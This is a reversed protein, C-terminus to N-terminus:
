KHKIFKFIIFVVLILMFYFNMIILISFTKIKNIEYQLINLVM